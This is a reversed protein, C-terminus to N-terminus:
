TEGEYDLVATRTVREGDARLARVRILNRGPALPLSAPVEVTARDGSALSRNWTELVSGGAEWRLPEWGDALRHLDLRRIPVGGRSVLELKLVPPPGSVEEGSRPSRFLVRFPKERELDALRARLTASLERTLEDVVTETLARSEQEHGRGSPMLFMPPVFITLAYQGPNETIKSRDWLSLAAKEAVVSHLLPAPPAPRGGSTDGDDSLDIIRVALETDTRYTVAPVFWSGFGGFVWGLVELAAMGFPRSVDQYAEPAELGVAILYDFANTAEELAEFRDTTELVHASAFVGDAGLREAVAGAVDRGTKRFAASRPPVTPSPEEPLSSARADFYIGVSYPLPARSFDDAREGTGSCGAGALLLLVTLPFSGRAFALTGQLPYKCMEKPIELFFNREHGTAAPRAM